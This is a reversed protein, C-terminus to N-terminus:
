RVSFRIFDTWCQKRSQMLSSTLPFYNSGFDRLGLQKYFHEVKEQDLTLDVHRRYVPGTDGPSFFFSFFPSPRTDPILSSQM